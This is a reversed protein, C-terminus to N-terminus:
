NLPIVPLKDPLVLEGNKYLAIYAQGGLLPEIALEYEGFKFSWYGSWEQVKVWQWEPHNIAEKLKKM